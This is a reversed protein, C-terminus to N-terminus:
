NLQGCFILGVNRILDLDAMLSSYFYTFFKVVLMVAVIVKMITSLESIGIAEGFMINMALAIVTLPMKNM